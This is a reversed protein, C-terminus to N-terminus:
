IRSPENLDLKSNLESNNTQDPNLDVDKTALLYGILNGDSGQKISSHHMM